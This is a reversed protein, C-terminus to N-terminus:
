RPESKPAPPRGPFRSADSMERRQRAILWPLALLTVATGAIAGTVMGGRAGSEEPATLLLLVVAAVALLAAAPWAYLRRTFYVSRGPREPANEVVAAPGATVALPRKYYALYSWHGCPEWGDPALSAAHRSRDRRDVVDRRYEWRLTTDGDRHSVFRGLRDVREIEWGQAGFRNMMDQDTYADVTWVWHEVGPEPAQPGNGGSPAPALDRAFDAPPGFEARPDAGSEAAYARVEAVLAAARDQPLGQEGLARTLEAYYDAGDGGRGDAHEAGHHSLDDM